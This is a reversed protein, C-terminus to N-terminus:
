VASMDAKDCQLCTQQTMRSAHRSRSAVSVCATHCLVHRKSHPVASMTQSLLDCEPCPLLLSLAM